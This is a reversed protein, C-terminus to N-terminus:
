FLSDPNYYKDVNEKVVTAAPTYTLRSFPKGNLINLALRITESGLITPNNLGSALYEGKKILEYAGKEGDIGAVKIEKQRGAERIAQLAGLGMSDNVAYVVDISKHAALIPEMAELGGQHTWRGWGEALVDLDAKGYTRLAYDYFGAIMGNRREMGAISEITGSMIVMDADGKFVQALYEGTMYGIKWNDARIEATVQASPDIGSDTIVVPIRAANAQRIAPLIAKPDKPNVILVDVKRAVLDEVDATQKAIDDLADLVILEVGAKQAELKAARVLESYFPAKLTYQSWGILPKRPAALVGSASALGVVLAAILLACVFSRKTM